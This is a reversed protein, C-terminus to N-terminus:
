GSVLTRRRASHATRRQQGQGASPRRQAPRPWQRALRWPQERMVTAVAGMVPDAAFGGPTALYARVGRKPSNFRLTQGHRLQFAQGPALPLDDLKADLDAGTLALWGSAQARLQLGGLPVEIVTADAANGLLWNAQQMAVWDLAGGQTIGLHRVGFRGGDQLQAFGLSHEVLLEIM